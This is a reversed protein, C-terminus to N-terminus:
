FDDMYLIPTADRANPHHEDWDTDNESSDNNNDADPEPSDCPPHLWPDDQTCMGQAVRYDGIPDHTKSEHADQHWKWTSKIWEIVRQAPATPTAPARVSPAPGVSSSGSVSGGSSSSSAMAVSAGSANSSSSTRRPEVLILVDEVLQSCSTRAMWEIWETWATEHADFATVIVNQTLISQLKERWDPRARYAIPLLVLRVLMREIREKENLLELAHILHQRAYDSQPPANGSSPESKQVWDPKSRLPDGLATEVMRTASENVGRLAHAWLPCFAGVRNTDARSEKEEEKKIGGSEKAKKLVDCQWRAVCCVYTLLTPAQQDQSPAPPAALKTTSPPSHYTAHMEQMLREIVAQPTENGLRQFAYKGLLQSMHLSMADFSGLCRIAEEIRDWEGLGLLAYPSDREKASRTTAARVLCELWYALVRADRAKPKGDVSSGSATTATSADAAAQVHPNPIPPPVLYGPQESSAQLDVLGIDQQAM